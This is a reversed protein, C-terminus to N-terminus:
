LVNNIIETSREYPIEKFSGCPNGASVPLTIPDITLSNYRPTNKIPMKMAYKIKLATASIKM